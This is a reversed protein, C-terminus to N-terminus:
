PVSVISVVPDKGRKGSKKISIFEQYTELRHKNMFLSLAFVESISQM